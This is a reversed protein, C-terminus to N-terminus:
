LELNSGNVQAYVAFAGRRFEVKATAVAVNFGSVM